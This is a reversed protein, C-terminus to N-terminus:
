CFPNNIASRVGILASLGYVIGGIILLVYSTVNGGLSVYIVVAFLSGYDAIPLGIGFVNFFFLAMVIAFLGWLFSFVGVKQM